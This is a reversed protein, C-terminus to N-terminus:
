FDPEGTFVSPASKIVAETYPATIDYVYLGSIASMFVIFADYVYMKLPKHQEKMVRTALVRVVVFVASIICAVITIHEFNM